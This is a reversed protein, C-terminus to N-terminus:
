RYRLVSDACGQPKQSKRCERAGCRVRPKHIHARKRGVRNATVYRRDESRRRSDALATRRQLPTAKARGPRLGCRAKSQAKTRAQTAAASQKGRAEFPRPSKEDDYPCPVAMGAGAEGAEEGNCWRYRLASDACGQPKQSERCERAGCQACNNTRRTVYHLSMRELCAAEM